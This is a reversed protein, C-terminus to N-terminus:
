SQINGSVNRDWCCTVDLIGLFQMLQMLIICTLFCEQGRYGFSLEPVLSACVANKLMQLMLSNVNRSHIGQVAVCAFENHM